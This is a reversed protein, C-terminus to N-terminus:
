EHWTRGFDETRLIPLPSQEPNPDITMAGTGDASLEVARIGEYNCIKLEPAKVCGNWVAWSKGADNTAAFQWGMFVYAVEDNVFQVQNTRIPMPDDHRFTMIEQWKDSGIPASSFTYYGGPVFGCCEHFAEVRIQVQANETRWSEFKEAKHPPVLVIYLLPWYNALLLILFIVGTLGFGGWIWKNM